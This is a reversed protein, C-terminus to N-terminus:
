GVYNVAVDRSEFLRLYDAARLLVCVRVCAHGCCRKKETPHSRVRAHSLRIVAYVSYTGRTGITYLWEGPTMM